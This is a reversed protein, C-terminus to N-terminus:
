QQEDDPNFLKPAEATADSARPEHVPPPAVDLQPAPSNLRVLLQLDPACITVRHGPKSNSNIAGVKLDEVTQREEVTAAELNAATTLDFLEDAKIEVFALRVQHPPTKLLRRLAKAGLAAIRKPTLM